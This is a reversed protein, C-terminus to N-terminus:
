LPVSVVPSVRLVPSHSIPWAAVPGKSVSNAIVGGAPVIARGAIPVPVVVIPPVTVRSVLALSCPRAIEVPADAARTPVPPIVPTSTVWVANVVVVPVGSVRLLTAPVRVNLSRSLFPTPVPILRVLTAAATVTGDAADIALVVVPATSMSPPVPANVKAPTILLEADLPRVTSTVFRLM